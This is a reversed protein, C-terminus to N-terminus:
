ASCIQFNTIRNNSKQERKIRKLIYWSYMHSDNLNQFYNCFYLFALLTIQKLFPWQMELKEENKGKSDRCTVCILFHHRMTLSPFTVRFHSSIESAVQFCGSEKLFFNSMEKRMVVAVSFSWKWTAKPLNNEMLKIEQHKGRLSWWSRFGSMLFTQPPKLRSSLRASARRSKLM